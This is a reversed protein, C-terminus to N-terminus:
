RVTRVFANRSLAGPIPTSIGHLLLQEYFYAIIAVTSEFTYAATQITRKRMVVAMYWVLKPISIPEVLPIRRMNHGSPFILFAFWKIDVDGVNWGSWSSYTSRCRKPQYHMSVESYRIRSSTTVPLDMVKNLIEMVCQERVVVVCLIEEDVWQTALSSIINWQLVSECM